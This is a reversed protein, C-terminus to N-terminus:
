EGDTAEQNLYQSAPEPEPWLIVRVPRLQPDMATWAAVQGDAATAPSISSLGYVAAVILPVADPTAAAVTMGLSETAPDTGTILEISGRIPESM